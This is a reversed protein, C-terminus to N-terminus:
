EFPVLGVLGGGEHVAGPGAMGILVLDRHTLEGVGVLDVLAGGAGLAAGIEARGDFAAAPGELAGAVGDAADDAVAVADDGAFSGAEEVAVHFVERGVADVAEHDGLPHVVVLLDGDEVFVAQGDGVVGSRMVWSKSSSSSRM